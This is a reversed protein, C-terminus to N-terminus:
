ISYLSKKEFRHLWINQKKVLAVRVLLEPQMCPWQSMLDKQELSVKEQPWTKAADGVAACLEGRDELLTLVKSQDSLDDVIGKFIGVGLLVFFACLAAYVGRTFAREWFEPAGIPKKLSVVATDSLRDHIARRQQHSFVALFPFLFLCEAMWVIARLSAQGFRPNLNTGVQVVRLNVFLKGLTAGYRSIMVSQYLWVVFVSLLVSLAAIVAFQSEQQLLMSETMMKRLPSVLFLISPTLVMCCDVTTAALRDLPSALNENPPNESGRSLKSKFKPGELNSDDIVM